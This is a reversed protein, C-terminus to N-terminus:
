SATLQQITRKKGPAALTPIEKITAAYTISTISNEKGFFCLFLRKLRLLVQRM